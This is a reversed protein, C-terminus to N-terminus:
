SNEIAEVAERSNEIAERTRIKGHDEAAEPYCPSSLSRPSRPLLPAAAPSSPLLPAAEFYLGGDGEGGERGKGIGEPGGEVRVCCVFKLVTVQVVIRTRTSDTLSGM